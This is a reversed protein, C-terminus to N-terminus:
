LLLVQAGQGGRGQVHLMPQKVAAACGKARRLRWARPQRQRCLQREPAHWDDANARLAAAVGCLSRGPSAGRLAHLLQRTSAVGTRLLLLLLRTLMSPHSLPLITRLKHWMGHCHVFQLLSMQDYWSTGYM